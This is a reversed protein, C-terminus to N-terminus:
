RGIGASDGRQVLVQFEAPRARVGARARMARQVWKDLAARQIGFESAMLDRGWSAEHMLVLLVRRAVPRLGALGASKRGVHAPLGRSRATMRLAAWAALREVERVDWAWLEAIQLLTQGHLLGAAVIRQPAPLHALSAASPAEVGPMFTQARDAAEALEAARGVGNRRTFRQISRHERSWAHGLIGQELGPGCADCRSPEGPGARKLLEIAARQAVDDPLM